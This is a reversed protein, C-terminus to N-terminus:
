VNHPISLDAVFRFGQDRATSAAAALALTSAQLGKQDAGFLERTARMLM